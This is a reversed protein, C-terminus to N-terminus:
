CVLVAEEVNCPGFLMGVRFGFSVIHTQPNLFFFFSLVRHRDNGSDEHGHSSQLSFRLVTSFLLGVNVRVCLCVACVCFTCIIITCRFHFLVVLLAHRSLGLRTGFLYLFVFVCPFYSLVVLFLHAYHMSSANDGHRPFICNWIM